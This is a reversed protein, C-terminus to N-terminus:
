RAWLAFASWVCNVEATWSGTIPARASAKPLMNVASTRAMLRSLDFDYPPTPTITVTSWDMPSELNLTNLLVLRM